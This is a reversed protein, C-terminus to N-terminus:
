DYKEEGLHERWNDGTIEVDQVQVTGAKRDALHIPSLGNLESDYIAQLQKASAGLDYAALISCM